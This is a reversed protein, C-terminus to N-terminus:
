VTLRGPHQQQRPLPQPHRRRRHPRRAAHRPHAHRLAHRRRPGLRVAPQAARPGSSLEGDVHAVGDAGSLRVAHGHGADARGAAPVPEVSDGRRLRLLIQARVPLSM